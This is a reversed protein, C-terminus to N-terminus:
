CLELGSGAAVALTELWPACRARKAAMGAQEITGVVEADRARLPHISVHKEVRAMALKTRMRQAFADAVRTNELREDDTQREIATDVLWQAFPLHNYAENLWDHSMTM